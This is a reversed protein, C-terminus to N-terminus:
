NSLSLNFCINKICSTVPMATFGHSEPFLNGFIFVYLFPHGFKESFKLITSNFNSSNARNKDSFDILKCNNAKIKYPTPTQKRKQKTKTYNESCNHSNLPWTSSEM